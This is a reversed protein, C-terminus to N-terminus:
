ISSTILPPMRLVEMTRAVGWQIISFKRKMVMKLLVAIVLVQMIFKLYNNVAYLLAPVALLVNNRAAPVFTSVSLLPKEGVKQHRANERVEEELWAWFQSLAAADRCIYLLCAVGKRPYSDRKVSTSQTCSGHNLGPDYINCERLERYGSAALNKHYKCAGRITIVRSSAAVEKAHLAKGVAENNLWWTAIGDSQTEVYTIDTGIDAPTYHKRIVVSDYCVLRWMYGGELPGM